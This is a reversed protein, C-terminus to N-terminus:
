AIRTKERDYFIDRTGSQAHDGAHAAEGSLDEAFNGSAHATAHRAHACCDDLVRDDARGRTSARQRGDRGARGTAGANEAPRGAFVRGSAMEARQRHSELSRPRAHVHCVNMGQPFRQSPSVAEGLQRHTDDV